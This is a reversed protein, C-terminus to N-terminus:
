GSLTKPRLRDAATTIQGIRFGAKRGLRTSLSTKVAGRLRATANIIRRDLHRIAPDRGQTMGSNVAERATLLNELVEAMATSVSDLGSVDVGKEQIIANVEATAQAQM